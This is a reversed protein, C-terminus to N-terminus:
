FVFGFVAYLLHFRARKTSRDLATSACYALVERATNALRPGGRRVRVRM